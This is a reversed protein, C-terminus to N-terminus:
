GCTGLVYLGFHVHIVSILFFSVKGSCILGNPDNMWGAQPMFHYEQRMSGKYARKTDIEEQARQINLQMLNREM